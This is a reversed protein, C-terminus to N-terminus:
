DTHVEAAKLSITWRGHCTCYVSVTHLHTCVPDSLLLLTSHSVASSWFLLCARGTVEGSKVRTDSEDVTEKTQTKLLKKKKFHASITHIVFVLMLDRSKLSKFPAM